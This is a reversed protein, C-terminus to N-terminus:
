GENAEIDIGLSKHSVINHLLEYLLQDDRSYLAM